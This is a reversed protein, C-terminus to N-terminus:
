QLDSAGNTTQSIFNVTFVYLGDQMVTYGGTHRNYGGGSESIVKDFVVTKPTGLESARLFEVFNKNLVISDKTGTFM